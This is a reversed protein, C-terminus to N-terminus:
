KTYYSLTASGYQDSVDGESVVVGAAKLVARLTGSQRDNKSVSVFVHDSEGLNIESYENVTYTKTTTSGGISSYLRVDGTYYIDLVFKVDGRLNDPSAEVFKMTKANQYELYGIFNDNPDWIPLSKAFGLSELPQADINQIYYWNGMQKSSEDKKLILEKDVYFASRICYKGIEENVQTIVQISTCDANSIVEGASYQASPKTTPVKTPAVTPKTIEPSPTTAPISTTSVQQQSTAEPTKTSTDICGCTLIAPITMLICIISLIKYNMTRLDNEYGM